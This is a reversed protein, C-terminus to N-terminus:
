RRIYIKSCSIATPIGSNATECSSYSDFSHVVLTNEIELVAPYINGIKALKTFNDENRGSYILWKSPQRYEDSEAIM